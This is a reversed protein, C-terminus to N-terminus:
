ENIFVDSQYADLIYDQDETNLQNFAQEVYAFDGADVAPKRLHLVLFLAVGAAVVLMASGIYWRRRRTSKMNVETHVEAMVDEELQDFFGDPVLYPMQKNGTQEIDFHTDM